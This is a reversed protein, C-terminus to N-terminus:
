GRNVGASECKTKRHLCRRRDGAVWSRRGRWDLAGVGGSAAAGVVRRRHRVRRQDMALQREQPLRSVSTPRNTSVDYTVGNVAFSDLSLALAARGKFRGSEKSTVVHGEFRTGKPVVVRDDVVLPEDLTADFHDGARNRKTDITEQLRVRVTTGPALVETRGPRVAAYGRGVPSTQATANTTNGSAAAEVSPIHGRNCGALALVLVNLARIPIKGMM